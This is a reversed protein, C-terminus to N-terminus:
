CEKYVLYCVLSLAGLRLGCRIGFTLHRRLCGLVMRGGLWGELLLPILPFLTFLVIMCLISLTNLMPILSMIIVLALLLSVDVWKLHFHLFIWPCWIAITRLTLLRLMPGTLVYVNLRVLHFLPCPIWAIFKSYSAFHFTILYVLAPFLTHVNTVLTSFPKSCLIHDIWSRALGDGWEFTLKVSSHFSLDCAHLSMESMFDGLWNCLVAVILIWMSIVLWYILMVNNLSWSGKYSELHILFAM